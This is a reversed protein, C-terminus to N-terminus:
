AETTASVIHFLSQVALDNPNSSNGNCFYIVFGFYM